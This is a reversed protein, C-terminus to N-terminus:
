LAILIGAVIATGTGVKWWFLKRKYQKVQKETLEAKQELNLIIKDSNGLESRLLMMSEVRNNLLSDKLVLQYNCQGIDSVLTENENKVIDYDKTVFYIDNVQPQNFKYVGEGDYPYRVENLWDYLVNTPTKIIFDKLSDREHRLDSLANQYYLRISDSKILKSQIKKYASNISDIRINLEANQKKLIDTYVNLGTIKEVLDYAQQRQCGNNIASVCFLIILVLISITKILDLQQKIWNIIKM